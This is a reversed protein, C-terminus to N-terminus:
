MQSIGRALAQLEVTLASSEYDKPEPNSDRRAWWIVEVLCSDQVIEAAAHFTPDVGFDTSTLSLHRM